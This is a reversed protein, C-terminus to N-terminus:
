CVKTVSFKIFNVYKMPINLLMNWICSWVFPKQYMIPQLKSVAPFTNGITNFHNKVSELLTSFQKHMRNNAQRDTRGVTCGRVRTFIRSIIKFNIYEKWIQYLIFLISMIYMPPALHEEVSVCFLKEIYKPM